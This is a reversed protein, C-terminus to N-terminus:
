GKRFFNQGSKIGIWKMKDSYADMFKDVGKKVSDWDYDDFIMFGGSKLKRIALVADEMVNSSNHNGDIYVIDFFDDQLKPVEVHSFGKILNFKDQKGTNRVNTLTANYNKLGDYTESYEENLLDWPDVGYLKSDPHRGHYKEFIVLNHGCLVGVELYNLPKVTSGIFYSWEECTRFGQGELVQKPKCWEAQTEAFATMKEMKLEYWGPGCPFHYIVLDDNDISYKSNVVYKNLLTNDYKNENIANFVIFPQDWYEPPPHKEVFIYTHIHQRMTNFLDKMEGSNKFLLIGACFGPTWEDIKSDMWSALERRKPFDFFQSGWYTVGLRGEGMAYLKDQQLPLSFLTNMDKQILIDTDIYLITDYENISEYDFLELRACSAQWKTTITLFHYKLTLGLQKGVKDISPYLTEDTFVLIDTTEAQLKGYLKISTLLLELLNVYNPNVFLCM